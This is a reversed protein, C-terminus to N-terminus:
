EGSGKEQEKQANNVDPDPFFKNQKKQNSYQLNETRTEEQSITQNKDQFFSSTFKIVTDDFYDLANDGYHELVFYM